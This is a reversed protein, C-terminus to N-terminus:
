GTAGPHAAPPPEQAPASPKEEPKEPPTTASQVAIGSAALVIWIVMLVVYGPQDPNFLLLAASNPKAIMTIGNILIAAGIFATAITIVHRQIMIALLGGVIAAFVTIIGNQYGLSHTIAVAILAGLIAGVAFVGLFYLVGLVLAGALGGIISYILAVGHHLDVQYGQSSAYLSGAIMFGGIFGILFLMLRFMRYGVFCSLFGAIILVLPPVYQINELFSFDIDSGMYERGGPKMATNREM